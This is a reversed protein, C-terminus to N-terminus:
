GSSKSYYAQILSSYPVNMHECQREHTILRTFVEDLGLVRKKSTINTILSVYNSDFGELIYLMKEHDNLHDGVVLIHDILDKAKCIYKEM